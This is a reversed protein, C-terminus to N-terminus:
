LIFDEMLFCKWKAVADNRACIKEERERTLLFICNNIIILGIFTNRTAHKDILYVVISKNLILFAFPDEM